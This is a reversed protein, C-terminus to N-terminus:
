PIPLNLNNAPVPINVSPRDVLHGENFPTEVCVVNGRPNRLHVYFMKDRSTGMRPTLVRVSVRAVTQGANFVVSGQQQVYDTGAKASGDVTLYDVTVPRNHPIPQDGPMIEPLAQVLHIEFTVTRNELPNLPQLSNRSSVADHLSYMRLAFPHGCDLMVKPRNASLIPALRTMAQANDRCPALGAPRNQYTANPNSFIPAQSDCLYAKMITDFSERSHESAVGESIIDALNNPGIGNVEILDDLSCFPRLRIIEQARAPGIHIIRELDAANDYNIAVQNLGCRIFAKSFGDFGGGGNEHGARFNHGVEHQFVFSLPVWMALLVSRYDGANGVAWGGPRIDYGLWLSVLDAGVLDRLANVQPSSAGALEGALGTRLETYDTEVAAVLRLRAPVLSSELASNMQFVADVIEARMAAPGGREQRARPTYVVLIDIIHKGDRFEGANQAGDKYSGGSLTSAGPLFAQGTVDDFRLGAPISSEVLCTKGSEEDFRLSYKRAGTYFSGVLVCDEWTFSFWSNSQGAFQGAFSFNYDTRQQVHTVVAEGTRGDMTELRLRSQPYLVRPSLLSDNILIEQIRMAMGAASNSSTPNGAASYLYPPTALTAAPVGPGFALGACLMVWVARWQTKM